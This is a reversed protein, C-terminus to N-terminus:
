REYLRRGSVSRRLTGAPSTDRSSVSGPREGFILNSEATLRQRLAAIDLTNANSDRAGQLMEIPSLLAPRSRPPVSNRGGQLVPLPPSQTPPRTAALLHPSRRSPVIFSATAADFIAPNHHHAPVKRDPSTMLDSWAAQEEPKVTEDDEGDDFEGEDNASTKPLPSPPQINLTIQARAHGSMMDGALFEDGRSRSDTNMEDMFRAYELDARQSFAGRNSRQGRRNRKRFSASAGGGLMGQPTLMNHDAFPDDVGLNSFGSQMNTIEQLSLSSRLPPHTPTGARALIDRAGLPAHLLMQGGFPHQTMPGRLGFNHVGDINGDHMVAPESLGGTLMEDMSPLRLQSNPPAMGGRINEEAFTGKHYLSTQSTRTNEIHQYSQMFAGPLSGTRPAIQAARAALAGPAQDDTFRGSGHAQESSGSNGHALQRERRMLQEAHLRNAYQQGPHLPRNINKPFDPPYGEVKAARTSFSSSGVLTASSPRAPPDMKSTDQVIHKAKQDTLVRRVTEDREATQEVQENVNAQRHNGNNEVVKQQRLNANNNQHMGNGDIVQKQHRNVRTNRLGTTSHTQRGLRPVYTRRIEEFDMQENYRRPLFRANERKLNQQLTGSEKAQAIVQKGANGFRTDVSSGMHAAGPVDSKNAVSYVSVTNSLSAFRSPVQTYTGSELTVKTLNTPDLKQTRFDDFPDPQATEGSNVSEGDEETNIRTAVRAEGEYRQRTVKIDRIAKDVLAIQNMFPHGADADFEDVPDQCSILEVYRVCTKARRRVLPGFSLCTGNDFKRTRQTAAPGVRHYAQNALTLATVGLPNYCKM